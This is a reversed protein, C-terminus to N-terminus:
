HMANILQSFLLPLRSVFGEMHLSIIEFIIGLFLFGVSIKVPFGIILVNM